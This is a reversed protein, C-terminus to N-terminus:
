KRWTNLGKKLHEKSGDQMSPPLTELYNRIRTYENRLNQNTQRRINENRQATLGQLTERLKLQTKLRGLTDEHMKSSDYVGSSRKKNGSKKRAM